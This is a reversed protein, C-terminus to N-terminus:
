ERVHPCSQQLYEKSSVRVCFCRQFRKFRNWSWLSVARLIEILKTSRAIIWLFPNQFANAKTINSIYLFAHNLCRSWQGCLEIRFKRSHFFTVEHSGAKKKFPKYQTSEIATMQVGGITVSRPLGQCFINKNIRTSRRRREWEIVLNRPHLPASKSAPLEFVDPDLNRFM